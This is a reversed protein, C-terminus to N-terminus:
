EAEPYIKVQPLPLIMRGGAKIYNRNRKLIEDFFSWAFVLVYDPAEKGLLISSPFIELHSGPTFFGTKAPADDIMYSVLDKTIECYQIMTNARGSAGYGAITKGESKLKKLLFILDKKTIAVDNAFERFSWFKDYGKTREKEVLLKVTDSVTLAHKSHKKSVYFRLSGAHIPILKVDFVVMNYRKFHEIASLLSYYFLHEHYIMDYQMEEIVKGLYHVEFVFVGNDGLASEVARTTGQIDSIHAYVNNAMIMDVQGYESVIEQAVEETFYSNKITVRDDNISSVVNEAPDVGIVNRIGQDALPRLLVGDNCGFELVTAESPNLFRDTVDQAYNRFHDRLTEISSSFYFYDQFLTEPEIIDVVQVSFCDNCFCVRMPFKQEDTFDKPKLFGGALAVEGFDMILSMNSKGCFACIFETNQKNIM